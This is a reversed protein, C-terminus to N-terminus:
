KDLEAALREPPVYGPLMRGSEFVIAPTGRVGFKHGLAYHQAVPDDCQAANLAEDNKAASLAGQPDEACWVSKLNAAAASQMGNRPWALYRVTIGLDLYEDLREHLQRCYGCSTDTFVHIVHKENPATYEIVTDEVQALDKVRMAELVAESVNNPESGTIEYIRGSVIHRGDESAYVLGQDTIVEMLGDIHAPRVSEVVFGMRQMHATDFESHAVSATPETSTTQEPSCAVAFFSLGLVALYKM